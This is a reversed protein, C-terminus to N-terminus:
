EPPSVSSTVVTSRDGHLHLQDHPGCAHGKERAAGSRPRAESACRDARLTPAQPLSALSMDARKAAAALRRDQPRRWLDPQGARLEQPKSRWPRGKDGLWRPRQTRMVGAPCAGGRLEPSCDPTASPFSGEQTRGLAPQPGPRAPVPSNGAAWQQPLHRDGTQSPDRRYQSM